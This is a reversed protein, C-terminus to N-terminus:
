FAGDGGQGGEMPGMGGGEDLWILGTTLWRGVSGCQEKNLSGTGRQQEWM